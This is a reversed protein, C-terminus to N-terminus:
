RSHDTCSVQLSSVEDVVHSLITLGLYMKIKCPSASLGITVTQFLISRAGSLFSNRLNSTVVCLQEWGNRRDKAHNVVTRDRMRVKQM